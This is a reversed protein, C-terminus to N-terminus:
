GEGLAIAMYRRCRGIHHARTDEDWSRGDPKRDDGQYDTLAAAHDLALLAYGARTLRDTAADFTFM